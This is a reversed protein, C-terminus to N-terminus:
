RAITIFNIGVFEVSSGDHFKLLRNGDPRELDLRVEVLELREALPHEGSTLLEGPQPPLLLINEFGLLMIRLFVGVLQHRIM